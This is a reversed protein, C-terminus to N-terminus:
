NRRTGETPAPAEPGGLAGVLVSLATAGRDTGIGLLCLRAEKQFVLITSQNQFRSVLHWGLEPMRQLFHDTLADASLGGDRYVNVVSGVVPAELRLSHERDKVMSAPVPVDPYDDLQVSAGGGVGPMRCTALHAALALVLLLRTGRM